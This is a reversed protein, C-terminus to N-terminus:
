SARAKRRNWRNVLYGGALVTAMLPLGAPLPTPDPVNGRDVYVFALGIYDDHNDDTAGDDYAFLFWDTPTSTLDWTWSGLGGTLNTPTLYSFVLSNSSSPPGSPVNNDSVPGNTVSGGLSSVTFPILTAGAHATTGLFQTGTVVGGVNNNQDLLETHTVTGGVGATLTAAFGSESGVFFWDVFYAGGLTSSVTGPTIIGEARFTTGAGTPDTVQSGPVPFAATNIVNNNGAGTGYGPFAPVGDSGFSSGTISVNMAHAFGLPMTSLLCSLILLRSRRM